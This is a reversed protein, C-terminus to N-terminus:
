RSLVFNEWAFWLLSTALLRPDWAGNDIGYQKYCSDELLTCYSWRPQVSYIANVILVMGMRVALQRLKFSTAAKRVGAAQLM